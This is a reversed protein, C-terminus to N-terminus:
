DKGNMRLRESDNRAFFGIDPAHGIEFTLSEIYTIRSRPSASRHIFQHFGHAPFDTIKRQGGLQLSIFVAWCKTISFNIAKDKANAM